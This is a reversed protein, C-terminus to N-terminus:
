YEYVLVRCVRGGKGGRLVGGEMGGTCYNGSVGGTNDRSCTAAFMLFHDGVTHHTGMLPDDLTEGRVAEEGGMHDAGWGKLVNIWQRM